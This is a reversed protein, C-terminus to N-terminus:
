AGNRIRGIVGFLDEDIPKDFATAGGPMKEVKVTVTLDRKTLSLKKPEEPQDIDGPEEGPILVKIM